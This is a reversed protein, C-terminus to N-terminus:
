AIIGLLKLVPFIVTWIFSLMLLAFTCYEFFTLAKRIQDVSKKKSKVDLNTEDVDIIELGHDVPIIKPETALFSRIASQRIIFYVSDRSVTEALIWNTLVGFIATIAWPFILLIQYISGIETKIIQKEINIVNILCFGSIAVFWTLRNSLAINIDTIIKFDKEAGDLLTQITVRIFSGDNTVEQEEFNKM